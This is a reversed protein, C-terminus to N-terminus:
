DHSENEKFYKKRAEKKKLYLQFVIFFFSFPILSFIIIQLFKPPAKAQAISLFADGVLIVVAIAGLITIIFSLKKGLVIKM